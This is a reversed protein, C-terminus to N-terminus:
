YAKFYRFWNNMGYPSLKSTITTIHNLELTRLINRISAIEDNWKRYNRHDDSMEYGFDVKEIRDVIESLKLKKQM